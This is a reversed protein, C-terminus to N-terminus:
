YASKSQMERLVNATSSSVSCVGDIRGELSDFKQGKITDTAHATIKFGVEKYRLLECPDVADRDEEGLGFPVADSLDIDKGSKRAFEEEASCYMRWHPFHETPAPIPSPPIGLKEIAKAATLSFDARAEDAEPGHPRWLWFGFNEHGEYAVWQVWHPEGAHSIADFNHALDEWSQENRRV